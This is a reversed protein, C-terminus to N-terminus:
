CVGRGGGGWMCLYVIKVYLEPDFTELGAMTTYRSNIVNDIEGYYLLLLCIHTDVWTEFTLYEILTSTNEIIVRINFYWKKSLIIIEFQLSFCTDVKLYRCIIQCVM